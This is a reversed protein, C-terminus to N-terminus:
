EPSSAHQAKKRKRTSRDPQLRIDESRKQKRGGCIGGGAYLVENAANVIADIQLKTIDAKHACVIRNLKADPKFKGAYQARLSQLQKSWKPSVTFARDVDDIETWGPFSLADVVKSASVATSKCRKPVTSAPSAGSGSSFFSGGASVGRSPISM